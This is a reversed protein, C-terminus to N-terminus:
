VLLTSVACYDECIVLPFRHRASFCHFIDLTTFNLPLGHANSALLLWGRKGQVSAEVRITSLM